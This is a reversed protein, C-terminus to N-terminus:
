ARDSSSTDILLHNKQVPFLLRYIFFAFASVVAATTLIDTVSHYGQYLMLSAYALFSLVLLKWAQSFLTCLPFVIALSVATHTSYDLGVGSWINMAKDAFMFGYSVLVMAVAFGFSRWTSTFNPWDLYVRYALGFLFIILLVPIYSDAIKDLTEYTM